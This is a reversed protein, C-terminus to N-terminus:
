DRTYEPQPRHSIHTIAFDFRRWRTLYRQLVVASLTLDNLHCLFTIHMLIYPQSKYSVKESPINILGLTKYRNKHMVPLSFLATLPFTQVLLPEKIYTISNNSCCERRASLNWSETLDFTMTTPALTRTRNVVLCRPETQKRLTVEDM